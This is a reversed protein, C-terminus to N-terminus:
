PIKQNVLRPTEMYTGTSLTMCEICRSIIIFIFYINSVGNVLGGVNM